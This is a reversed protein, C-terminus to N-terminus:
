GEVGGVLEKCPGCLPLRKVEELVDIQAVVREGENITGQLEMGKQLESADKLQLEKWDSVLHRLWTRWPTPIDDSLNREIHRIEDLTLKM